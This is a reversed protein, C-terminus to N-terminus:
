TKKHHRAFIELHGVLVRRVDAQIPSLDSARLIELFTAVLESERQSMSVGPNADGIYARVANRILDTRSCRRKQSEERLLDVFDADFNFSTAQRLSKNKV